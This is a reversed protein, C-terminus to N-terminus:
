IVCNLGLCRSWFDGNLIKKKGLKRRLLEPPIKYLDEDVAKPPRPPRAPLQVTVDYDCVKGQKRQERKLHQQRQHRYQKTRKNASAEKTPTLFRRLTILTEEVGVRSGSGAADHRKLGTQSTSEFYQTMSLDDYCEWNGFQPFRPRKPADEM